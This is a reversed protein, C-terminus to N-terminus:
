FLGGLTERFITEGDLFQIQVAVAWLPKTGLEDVEGLKVLDKMTCIAADVNSRAALKALRQRDEPTFRHHDPFLVLDVVEAGCRELTARFAAPNGIGCFGLVRKGLVETVGFEQRSPSILSYPIHAIEGWVADPAFKQVRKRIRHREEEAIRDARSLLLADARQLSTLSERLTGRPFIRDFGFPESADLLVIDWDRAIRRHQFADDLILIDAGRESLFDQAAAFRNPNQRHPVMPFRFALELFEDNVGGKTQGYGRSIIGPRCGQDLFFQTLWAVMPSKGTGGLTLNGVSVIPIPPRKVPLLGYDYCVNRAAVVAAYPVELVGLGIRFAVSVPDRRKGSILERFDM